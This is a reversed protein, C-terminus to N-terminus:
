EEEDGGLDRFVGVVGLFLVQLVQSAVGLLVTLLLFAVAVEYEILGSVFDHEILFFVILAVSLTEVLKRVEGLGFKLFEVEDDGRDCLCLPVLFDGLELIVEEVIPM